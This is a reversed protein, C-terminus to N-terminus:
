NGRGELRGAGFINKVFTCFSFWLEGLTEKLTNTFSVSKAGHAGPNTGDDTQDHPNRVSVSTHATDTKELVPKESSSNWRWTWNGDETVEYKQGCLLGKIVISDQGAPLVVQFPGRGGSVTFIADQKYVAAGNWTKHITLDFKNTHITFNHNSDAGDVKNVTVESWCTGCDLTGIKFSALEVTFDADNETVM